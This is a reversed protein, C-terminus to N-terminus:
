RWTAVIREEPRPVPSPRGPRVELDVLVSIVRRRKATDWGQWQRRVHAPDVDALVSPASLARARREAVVIRETLKAEIKGLAAPTIDGEAAADVFGALRARLAEVDAWAQTAEDTTPTNWVEDARALRALVLETVYEDASHAAISLRFCDRCTYHPWTGRNRLVYLRRGQCRGCRLLGSLLWRHAGERQTSRGPETLVAQCRRFTTEDVLPPWAAPGIIQGRHVRYGAYGPNLAVRRIQTDVWPGGRPAPIGRANLDRAIAKLSEHAAARRAIERVIPATTEDPVQRIMRGTDPHHERRYGYLLKGHPQGKEANARVARLVRDRTADAEREALIADLATAFRDDTRTLDYTRGSYAYLINHKACLDRLKTYAILDRTFRSAEWAVLVDLKGASVDTVLQQYDPRQKRAHRSASRDNDVYVRGITWGERDCWARAEAEQEAVSRARGTPDSSVRTYLGARM